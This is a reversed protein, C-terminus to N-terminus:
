RPVVHSELRKQMRQRIEQEFTRIHKETLQAARTGDGARLAEVIKRHEAVAPRMDDIESLYLHWLRNSQAYLMDATATLFRNGAAKWVIEHCRNDAELLTEADSAAAPDEARALIEEIENWDEVSGRVAALEALHPEIVARSNFLMPLDDIDV